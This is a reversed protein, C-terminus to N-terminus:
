SELATLERKLKRAKWLAWSWELGIGVVVCIGLALMIYNVTQLTHALKVVKEPHHLLASQLTRQGSAHVSYFLLIMGPLLPLYGWLWISRLIHIRKTLSQRYFDLCDRSPTSMAARDTIRRSYRYYFIFLVNLALVSIGLRVWGDHLAVIAYGGALLGFVASAALYIMLIKQHSEFKLARQHVDALLMPSIETPQDQWLNQLDTEPEDTM